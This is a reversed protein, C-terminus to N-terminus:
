LVEWGIVTEVRFSRWAEKDLSWVALHDSDPNVSEIIVKQGYANLVNQNLTSPMVRIEDSDIKQFTVTVTGKKLAEILRACENRDM